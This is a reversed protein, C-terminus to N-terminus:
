APDVNEVVYWINWLTTETPGGVSVVRCKEVLQSLRAPLTVPIWDGVLFAWRLCVPLVDCGGAAYDANCM